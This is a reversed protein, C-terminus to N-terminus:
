SLSEVTQLSNKQKDYRITLWRVLLVLLLAPAALIIFAVVSIILDSSQQIDTFVISSIFVSWFVSLLLVVFFCLRFFNAVGTQMKYLLFFRLLYNESKESAKDFSQLKNDLFAKIDYLENAASKKLNELEHPDSVVLNQSTIYTSLLEIRQKADEVMQKRKSQENRSGLWAFLITILIPLLSSILSSITAESM